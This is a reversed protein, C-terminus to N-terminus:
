GFKGSLQFYVLLETVPICMEIFNSHVENLGELSEILRNTLVIAVLFIYGSYCEGM